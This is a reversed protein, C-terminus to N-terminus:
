RGTQGLPDLARELEEPPLVGRETAIERVSRGTTSAQRAIEAATEYGILPALATCMALSKEISTEAHEADAQIGVICRDAFVRSVSSLIEVSELLNHAILPIFVNLELQGWLGGLTISADNGVVQACVMTVSECIVPNVKGPMISSGPQIEPLRLEGLGCRPGSALYRIDNAIKMLSCAITKLEGSVEVAADRAGQAEFHDRAEHYTQGTRASIRAITRQAFEPPANLGTGVATGGLALEALGAAAHQAREVANAIQSAYGGFEQGLRVPTADQLHTRCIKVIPDFEEAKSRLADRLQKLAPVLDEVIAQRAAIHLATPMVDNSSQARNVHDNPHVQGPGRGGGLIEAARAAIVENANMHTSTGSGTQFIDLVFEQELKGEYVEEAAQQVADALPADLEGLERLTETACSKILGLAAIFRRSFRLRSVPFNELARQTHAGYYAGAPVRVEGMSDREIRYESM